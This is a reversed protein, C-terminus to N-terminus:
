KGSTLMIYDKLSGKRLNCVELVPIGNQSSVFDVGNFVVGFPGSKLEAIDELKVFIM